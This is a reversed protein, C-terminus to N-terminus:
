PAIRGDLELGIGQRFTTTYVYGGVAYTVDVADFRWTGIHHSTAGVVLRLQNGPQVLHAQLDALHPDVGRV